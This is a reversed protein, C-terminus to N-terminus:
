KTSNTIEELKRIVIERVKHPNANPLRRMIAGIFCNVIKEQKITLEIM